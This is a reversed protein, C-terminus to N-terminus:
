KTESADEQSNSSKFTNLEKLKAQCADLRNQLDTSNKGLRKLTEINNTLTLIEFELNLLTLKSM